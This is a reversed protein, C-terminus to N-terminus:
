SGASSSSPIGEAFRKGRCSCPVIEYLCVGRLTTLLCDFPLCVIMLPHRTKVNTLPRTTAIRTKTTEANERVARHSLYFEKGVVESPAKEM